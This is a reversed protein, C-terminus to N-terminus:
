LKCQMHSPKKTESKDTISTNSTEPKATTTEAKTTQTSTAATTVATTQYVKWALAAIAIGRRENGAELHKVIPILHLDLNSLIKHFKNVLVLFPQIVRCSADRGAASHRLLIFILDKHQICEVAVILVRYVEGGVIWVPATDPGDKERMDLVQQPPVFCRRLNRRRQIRVAIRGNLRSILIASQM